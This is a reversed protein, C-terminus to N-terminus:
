TKNPPPLHPPYKDAPHASSPTPYPPPAIRPPIRPRSRADAPHAPVAPICCSPCECDPAKSTPLPPTETPFEPLGPTFGIRKERGIRRLKEPLRAMPRNPTLFTLNEPFVENVHIEKWDTEGAQLGKPHNPRPYNE